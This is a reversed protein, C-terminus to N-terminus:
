GWPTFGPSRKQRGPYVDVTFYQNGDSDIQKRHSGDGNFESESIYGAALHPPDLESGTVILREYNESTLKMSELVERIEDMSDESEADVTAILNYRNGRVQDIRVFILDDREEDPDLARLGNIIENVEHSEADILYLARHREDGKM